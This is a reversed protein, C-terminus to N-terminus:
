DITSDPYQLEYAALNEFGHAKIVHQAKGARNKMPRGCGPVRCQLDAEADVTSTEATKKKPAEVKIGASMLPLMVEEFLDLHPKCLLFAKPAKGDIAVTKEIVTGDGETAQVDCTDWDCAVTVTIFRAM